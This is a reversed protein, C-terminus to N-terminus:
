VDCVCRQSLFRAGCSHDAVRFHLRSRCFGDQVAGEQPYALPIAYQSNEEAEPTKAGALKEVAAQVRRMVAEYRGRVGADEMDLLMEFGHQTTFGQM